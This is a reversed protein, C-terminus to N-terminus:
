YKCHREKVLSELLIGLSLVIGAIEVIKETKNIEQVHLHVSKISIFKQRSKDSMERDFSIFNLIPNLILDVSTFGVDDIQYISFSEDILVM